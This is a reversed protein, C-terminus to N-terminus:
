RKTGKGAAVFMGDAFDVNANLADGEPTLRMVMPVVMGQADITFTLVLNDGDRAVRSATTTGPMQDSTLEAAVNGDADKIDVNMVFSQGQADMAVAWAGLFGQAQAAPITEQAEAAPAGFAATAAVVAVLASFTRILRTM